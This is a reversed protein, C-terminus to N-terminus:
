SFFAGVHLLVGEVDNYYVLDSDQHFLPIFEDDRNHCINSADWKQVYQRSALLEASEKSLSLDRILDSLENQDLLIPEASSGEYYDADNLSADENTDDVHIIDDDDDDSEDGDRLAFVSFLPIPVEISHPVPRIASRLCPYNRSQRKNNLGTTDIPCFDCDDDYNHPECWVM